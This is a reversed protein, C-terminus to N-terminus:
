IVNIEVVFFFASALHILSKVRQPHQPAHSVRDSPPMLERTVNRKGDPRRRHIPVLCAQAAFFVSSKKVIQASGTATYDFYVTVYRRSVGYSSFLCRMGFVFKRGKESAESSNAAALGAFYPIQM